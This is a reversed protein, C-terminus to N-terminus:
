LKRRTSHDYLAIQTYEPSSVEIRTTNEGPNAEPNVNILKRDRKNKFLLGQGSDAIVQYYPTSNSTSLQTDWNFYSLDSPKPLLMKRGEFIAAFDDTRLRQAYDIYGSIEQRKSNYHRIFIITTLKGSRVLEERSALEQLLPSNQLDCVASALRKPATLKQNTREMLLGKREDFDERRITDGVGRYGLEVLQRATEEDELYFLDGPSLQSDLYDEYTDFQEVIDFGQSAM